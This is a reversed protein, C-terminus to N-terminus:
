LGSTPYRNLRLLLRGKKPACPQQWFTRCSCLWMIKMYVNPLPAEHIPPCIQSLGVIVFTLHPPPFHIIVTNNYCRTTWYMNGKPYTNQRHSTCQRWLLTGHMWIRCLRLLKWTYEWKFCNIILLISRGPHGDNLITGWFGAGKTQRQTTSPMVWWSHRVNSVPNVQM